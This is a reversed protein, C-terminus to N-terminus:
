RADDSPAPERRSAEIGAASAPESADLMIGVYAFTALAPPMILLNDTTAYVALAAFLAVVFPRDAAAASRLIDRGWLLIAAGLVLSGITGVEVLLRLYENHPLDFYSGQATAGLGHGFVPSQLFDGLFGRWIEGRGSLDVAGDDLSRRALLPLYAAFVLVVLGGGILFPRLFRGLVARAAGLALVYAVAHVVCAFLAMRGGSVIVLSLDLAALYALRASAARVAEHLAVAFGIYALCGFWGSNSAGQVRFYDVHASHLGLAQTLIGGFLCLAPLLMVLLAYRERSGPEIVLQALAWPLALGFAALVMEGSTLGPGAVLLSQVLLLGVALAPWNRVGPQLGYRLAHGLLAVALIAKHLPSVLPILHAPLHGELLWRFGIALSALVLVLCATPARYALWLLFAAGIPWAVLVPEIVPAAPAPGADRPLSGAHQYM